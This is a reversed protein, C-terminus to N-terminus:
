LRKDRFSLATTNVFSPHQKKYLIKAAAGSFMMNVLLNM